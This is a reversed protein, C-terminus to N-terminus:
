QYRRAGIFVSILYSIAILMVLHSIEAEGGFFGNKALNSYALGLVLGIGMSIGMAQLQIKQQLEDLGALHNKNAWIMAGGLIINLLLIALYITESDQWLNEPGFRLAAISLLWSFTWFALLKTNSINQQHWASPTKEENTM